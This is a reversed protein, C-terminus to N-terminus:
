QENKISDILDQWHRAYTDYVKEAALVWKDRDQLSSFVVGAEELAQIQEEQRAETLDQFLSTAHKAAERFLAQDAASLRSWTQESILMASPQILYNSWTYYKAVEYYKNNYYGKVPNEAGDVIGTQLASYLETTPTQTAVGGFAKITDAYIAGDQVRVVLSHFDELSTCPRKTFFNRPGAVFYGLVVLGSGAKAVDDAVRRGFSGQMTKVAHETNRFLFPLSLIPLYPVNVGWGYLNTPPENCMDIAGIMLSQVVSKNDGLTGSPYVLIDIRGQTAERLYDAFWQTAIAREDQPANVESYRLVMRNSPLPLSKEHVGHASLASMAVLMLGFFCVQKM